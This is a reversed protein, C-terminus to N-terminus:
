RRGESLCAKAKARSASTASQPLTKRPLRRYRARPSSASGVVVIAVRGIKAECGVNALEIERAECIGDNAPM